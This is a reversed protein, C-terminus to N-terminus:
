GEVQVGLDKGSSKWYEMFFVAFVSIMIGLVGAIAVILKKNSVPRAPPLADSVVIVSSRGIEASQKINAEKLKQQYADRTQKALEVEHNLIEFQNEKEALEAQLQEIEKQRAEIERKLSDLQTTYQALTIEYNKVATLLDTYAPNLQEDTMQLGALNKLQSGSNEVAVQSMLPDSALSKTTKITKPTTELAQRAKALAGSTSEVDIKVQTIKTKFETLQTLKSNLEQKLEDVGRPKALFATLEQTAKELNQKEMELQKTIFEASKGTQQQLKESIFDVYKNSLVNAIDAALQPDANKVNVYILNTNKPSEVEIISALDSRTMEYKEDLKLEKIVANLVAPTKIQEKYTDLTMQPYQSLSDVLESFKNEKDEASKINVPSVMLVTKANYVPEMIFVAYLSSLLICVATFIAIIWKGRLIVEVYERLSIEEM